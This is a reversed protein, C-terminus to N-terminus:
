ESDPQARYFEELKARIEDGIVIKPLSPRHGADQERAAIRAEAIYFADILSATQALAHGFYAEGFYTFQGDHGCGFSNRDHAAAAILLTHPDKLDDLFGGSYCSSIIIVKWKIGSGLIANHIQISTLDNLGMPELQVSLQHDESGHSSFFLFVIDEEPDIRSSIMRLAIELNHRNAIPYSSLTAPNNILALANGPRTFMDEMLQKVYLVENKFVDEGAYGAFGLFYMDSRGPVHRQMSGSYLALLDDQLYYTDEINIRDIHDTTLAAEPDFAYWLPQNPLYFLAPINIGAYVTVLLLVRRWGPRFVKGLVRAVVLLYWTLYLGFVAWEAVAPSLREQRMAAADILLCGLWITPVVSLLMVITKLASAFSNQIWLLVTVSIIFLLYLSAQYSLGFPNFHNDPATGLYDQVFPLLFSVLLLTAAQSYEISFHWPRVKMFLALRLGALLNAALGKLLRSLLM